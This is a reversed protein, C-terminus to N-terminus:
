MTKFMKPYKDYLWDKEVINRDTWARFKENYLKISIVQMAVQAAAVVISVILWVYQLKFEESFIIARIYENINEIVAVGICALFAAYFLSLVIAYGIVATNASPNEARYACEIFQRVAKKDVTSIGNSNKLSKVYANMYETLNVNQAALWRGCALKAYALKVCDFLIRYCAIFVCALVVFTREKKKLEEAQVIRLIADLAKWKLIQWFALLFLVGCLVAIVIRAVMIESTLFKYGLPKQKRWLSILDPKKEPSTQGDGNPQETLAM